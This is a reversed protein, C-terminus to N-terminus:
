GGYRDGAIVHACDLRILMEFTKELAPEPTSAVDENAISLIVLCLM